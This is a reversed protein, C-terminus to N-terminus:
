NSHQILDLYDPLLCLAFLTLMNKIVEAMSKELAWPRFGNGSLGFCLLTTSYELVWKRELYQSM